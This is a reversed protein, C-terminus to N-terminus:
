SLSILLKAPLESNNSSWAQVQATEDDKTTGAAV